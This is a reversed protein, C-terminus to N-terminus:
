ETECLPAFNDIQESYEWILINKYSFLVVKLHAKKVIHIVPIKKLAIQINAYSYLAIIYLPDLKYCKVNQSHITFTSPCFPCLIWMEWYDMNKQLLNQKIQCILDRFRSCFIWGVDFWSDFFIMSCYTSVFQQISQCLAFQQVSQCISTM